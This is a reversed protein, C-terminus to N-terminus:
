LKQDLIKGRRSDQGTERMKLFDEGSLQRIIAGSGDTLVVRLGPGKGSMSVDIGSAKADERFEVLAAEVKEESPPGEEKKAEEQKKQQQSYQEKQPDGDGERKTRMGGYIAEFNASSIKM